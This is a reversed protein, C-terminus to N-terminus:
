STCPQLRWAQHLLCFLQQVCPGLLLGECQRGQFQGISFLLCRSLVECSWMVDLLGQVALISAEAPKSLQSLCSSCQMRCHDYTANCLQRLAAHRLGLNDDAWWAALLQRELCQQQLAHIAHVSSLPNHEDCAHLLPQLSSRHVATGAQV